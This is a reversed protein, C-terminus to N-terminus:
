KSKLNVETKIDLNFSFDGHTHLIIVHLIFVFVAVYQEALNHTTQELASVAASLKTVNVDQNDQQYQDVRQKLSTLQETISTSLEDSVAKM